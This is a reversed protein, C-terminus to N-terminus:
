ENAFKIKNEFVLVVVHCYVRVSVKRVTKEQIDPCVNVCSAMSGMKAFVAMIVPTANAFKKM